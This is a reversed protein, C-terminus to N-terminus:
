QGRNNQTQSVRGRPTRDMHQHQGDLGHMTKRAQTCGVNDTANDREGPLEEHQSWLISAQKNKHHRVTGEKELKKLFGSMQKRQQSFSSSTTKDATITLVALPRAVAVSLEATSVVCIVFSEAVPPSLWFASTAVSSTNM